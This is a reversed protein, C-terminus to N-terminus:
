ETRRESKAILGNLTALVEQPHPVNEFIFRRQEGATQIHLNGYKLLNPLVGNTEVAMDQIREIRHVSVVRSLIGRQDVDIVRRNTIIWLDLHHDIWSNFFYLLLYLYYTSLGLVLIAHGFNSEFAGFVRFIFLSDLWFLLPPLFVLMGAKIGAVTVIWWHHRVVMIIDEGPEAVFFRGQFLM